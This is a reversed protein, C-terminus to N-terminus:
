TLFTPPHAPFRIKPFLYGVKGQSKSVVRDAAPAVSVICFHFADLAGVNSCRVTDQQDYSCGGVGNVDSVSSYKVIGEDGVVVVVVVVNVDYM